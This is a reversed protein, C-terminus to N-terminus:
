GPLGRHGRVRAPRQAHDLDPDTPNAFSRDFLRDGGQVRQGLVGFEGQVAAIGGEHLADLPWLDLPVQPAPPSWHTSPDAVREVHGDSGALVIRM